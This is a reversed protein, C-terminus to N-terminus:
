RYLEPALRCAERKLPRAFSFNGHQSENNGSECDTEGHSQKNDGKLDIVDAVATNKTPFKGPREGVSHKPKTALGRRRSTM